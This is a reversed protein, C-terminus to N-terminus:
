VLLLHLRSGCLGTSSPREVAGSLDASRFGQSVRFLARDYPITPSGFCTFSPIAPALVLVCAMPSHRPLSVSCRGNFCCARLLAVVLFWKWDREGYPVVSAWVIALVCVRVYTGMCTSTFPFGAPHNCGYLEILQWPPPTLSRASLDVSGVDGTSHIAVIPPTSVSLKFSEILGRELTCVFVCVSECRRTYAPGIGLPMGEMHHLRLGFLLGWRSHACSAVFGCLTSSLFWSWSWEVHLVSCDPLFAHSANYEINFVFM